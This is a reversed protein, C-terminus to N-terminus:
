QCRCDFSSSLRQPQTLTPLQNSCSRLLRKSLSPVPDEETHRTHQVHRNGLVQLYAARVTVQERRQYRESASVCM